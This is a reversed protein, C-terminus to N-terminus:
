VSQEMANKNRFFYDNETQPDKGSIIQNGLSRKDKAEKVSDDSPILDQPRSELSSVLELSSVKGVFTPGEQAFLFSSLFLGLIFTFSIKLM